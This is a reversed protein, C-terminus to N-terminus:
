FRHGLGFLVASEHVQGVGALTSKTVQRRAGVTLTTTPALQRTLNLSVRGQNTVDGERNGVGHLRVRSGILTIATIPSLRRTVSASGGYQRNSPDDPLLPLLPDNPHVLRVYSRSFTEVTVTTLRGQFAASMDVGQELQPADAFVEVAGRLQAPLGLKNVLDQVLADRVQPDPYRTTLMADLLGTTSGAGGGLLQSSERATARRVARLALAVFPSRHRLQVDWGTGFFRHEAEAHLTSRESPAWDVRAGYIPDTYQALSFESHERGLVLSLVTEPRVAFSGVARAAELALTSGTGDEYTTRQGSYELSYGLPLPRQVLRLTQDDEHWDAVAASGGEQGSHRVWQRELRGLLSLSPSFEHSVYPALSYRATTLRNVTSPTDTQVGFPDATSQDVQTSADLYFWRDALTSQLAARGSPLVRDPATKRTYVLAELGFDVDVRFRGGQGRAHLRPAFDLVLDSKALGDAALAGNDTATANIAVEPTVRWSEAHANTGFLAVALCVAALAVPRYRLAAHGSPARAASPLRRSRGDTTAM